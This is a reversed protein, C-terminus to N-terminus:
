TPAQTRLSRILEAYTWSMMGDDANETARAAEELAAARAERRATAIAGASWYYPSDEDAAFTSWGGRPDKGLRVWDGPDIM